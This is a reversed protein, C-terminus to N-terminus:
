PSRRGRGGNRDRWAEPATAIGATAADHIAASELGAPQQLRAPERCSMIVAHGDWPAPQANVEPALSNSLRVARRHPSRRLNM